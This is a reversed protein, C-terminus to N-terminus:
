LGHEAKFTRLRRTFHPLRPLPFDLRFAETLLAPPLLTPLLQKVEADEDLLQEIAEDSLLAEGSIEDVIRHLAELHNAFRKRRTSLELLFQYYRDIFASKDLKLRWLLTDLEDHLLVQLQDAIVNSLATDLAEQWQEPSQLQELIGRILIQRTLAIAQATGLQRYIRIVEFLPWLIEHFLTNIPHFPKSLASEDRYEQYVVKATGAVISVDGWSVENEGVQINARDLHAIDRLAKYLVIAQEEERLQRSPPLIEIFCFRRKLAEGISQVHHRDFSNLTGIIRFDKPLPVKISKGGVIMQLADGNSLATMAEGLAIEIPARNFEDIILWHGQFTNASTNALYCNEVTLRARQANEWSEPAQLDVAWNRLIAQVLHGYQTQYAVKEAQVVPMISSLLTRTSWEATATVLTTTYATSTTLKRNELSTEGKTYTHERQWLIEPVLRALETKGTGPPGTLILHGGLLAYYIDRVIKEDILIHKRVEAILWSLLPEPTSQLPANEIHEVFTETKPQEIAYEVPEEFADELESMVDNEDEPDLDITININNLYTPDKKLKRSLWVFFHESWYNDTKITPQNAALLNLANTITQYDAASKIEFRQTIRMTAPTLLFNTRFLAKLGERTSSSSYIYPEPNYGLWCAFLSIILASNGPHVYKGNSVGAAELRQKENTLLNYCQEISQGINQANLDHLILRFNPEIDPNTPAHYRVLKNLEALFSGGYSIGWVTNQDRSLVKMAIFFDNLRRTKDIFQKTLTNYSQIVDRRQTNLTEREQQFDADMLYQLILKELTMTGSVM